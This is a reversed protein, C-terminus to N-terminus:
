YTRLLTDVLSQLNTMEIPFVSYLVLV